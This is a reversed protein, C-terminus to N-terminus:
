PFDPNQDHRDRRVIATSVTNRHLSNHHNVIIPYLLRNGICQKQAPIISLAYGCRKFHIYSIHNVGTRRCRRVQPFLAFASAGGEVRGREPRWQRVAPLLDLGRVQCAASWERWVM